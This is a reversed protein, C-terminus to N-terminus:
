EPFCHNMPLVYIANYIGVRISLAVSATSNKLKLFSVCISPMTLLRIFHM